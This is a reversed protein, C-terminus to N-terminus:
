RAALELNGPLNSKAVQAQASMMATALCEDYAAMGKLDRIFPRECANKAAQEVRKVLRATQGSRTLDLDAYDVLITTNETPAAMAPAAMALASIAPALASLIRALM